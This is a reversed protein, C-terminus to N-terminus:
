ARSSVPFVADRRLFVFFDLLQEATALRRQGFEANEAHHPALVARVFRGANMQLAQGRAAFQDHLPGPSFAPMMSM